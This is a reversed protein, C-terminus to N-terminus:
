QWDAPEAVDAPPQVSGPKGAVYLTVRSGQRVKTNYKPSQDVVVDAPNSPDPKFALEPELGAAKVNKWAESLTAGLLSPMSIEEQKHLTCKETPVHGPFFSRTEKKKCWPNAVQGSEACILVSQLDANPPKPFDHQEVGTLAASMYANWIQAPWSGGTVRVGRIDVMSTRQGPYGIWVTTVLDPTYGSFWADVHDETTGSKGACPRGLNSWQGTGQMAVKKLTMNVHYAIVPDLAPSGLPKNEEIVHNGSDEIRFISIPDGGNGLYDVSGTVRTGGNAFTGYASALELPTVGNDLGGLAIAPQASFSTKIGAKHATDAVDSAGVRMMLDAYVANDSYVTAKELSIKGLYLSDFNSVDWFNPGGLSLHKPESVFPTGPSIGKKMATALVFPKFASGPQRHGQTVVNFKQESFSRGGVMARIYGTSPELSVLAASPDGPQNLVGGISAEAAAQKDLDLTTYVRLGGEFTTRTGFRAILQEKIYEVFYPAVNSEPGIKFPAAPLPAAIAADYEDQDIMGHLLMKALVLNRRERAADPENFPSYQVPSKPIAALLAAEPLTLLGAPKNFYTMSAVQLGYAGSGFYITNLYESIIRDKDWRQELEYAYIAEKLKRNVTPDNSVYTNKIYQQTITSGGEALKGETFNTLIARAMGVPDVGQHDYFRDDEIVVLAQKMQEPIEEPRLIMRNEGTNLVAILHPTPSSDFILTDNTAQYEDEKDLSPLTESVSNWARSIAPSMALLILLALAVIARAHPFSGRRERRQRSNYSM